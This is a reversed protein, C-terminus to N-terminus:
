PKGPHHPRLAPYCLKYIRWVIPYLPVVPPYKVLNIRKKKVTGDGPSMEGELMADLEDLGICPVAKKHCGLGQSTKFEKGCRECVYM